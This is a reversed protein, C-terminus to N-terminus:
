EALPITFSIRTGKKLQSNITLKGKNCEVFERVLILGIGSGEENGPRVPVSNRMNELTLPDIGVGNDRVEIDMFDDKEESIIRIEGNKETYRVANSVLNRM